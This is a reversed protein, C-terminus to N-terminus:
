HHCQHQTLPNKTPAHRYAFPHNAHNAWPLLKQFHCIMANIIIIIM